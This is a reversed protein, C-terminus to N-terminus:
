IEISHKEILKQVLTGERRKTQHWGAVEADVFYSQHPDLKYTKSISKNKKNHHEENTMLTTQDNEWIWDWWEGFPMKKEFLKNYTTVRPLQHDRALVRAPKNFNNRAIARIADETIGVVRWSWAEYGFVATMVSRKKSLSFHSDFVLEYIAYYNRKEAETPERYAVRPVKEDAM